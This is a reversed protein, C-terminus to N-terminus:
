EPLAPAPPKTSTETPAANNKTAPEGKPTSAPATPAVFGAVPVIATQLILKPPVQGEVAKDGQVQVWGVLQLAGRVPPKMEAPFEFKNGSEFRQIYEDLHLQLDTVPMTYSYKLEGKKPAVGRAGGPMERVVMEHQRIGNPARSAVIEEALALRLRLSPLEEETFGTVNANISLEGDTVVAALQLRIPTSQQRRLDVFQRLNNYASQTFQLPGTYPFRKSDVVMGDITVTPTGGAEYFAFRDESDQNTMGDPGPIHQHYRLTVVESAPYQRSLATVGLDAAVCPPCLAGTFLEVLVAHDGLVTKPDADAAVPAKERVENILADLRAHHVTALHAELGKDDGHRETWVKKLEDSPTPDGAPQGTRKSMLFQELLPLAVIDSYYLIADELQQTVQAHGALAILIESNFQQKKLLEKLELYAEARNTEGVSTIKELAMQVAAADRLTAIYQKFEVTAEGSLEEARAIHKLGEESLRRTAILHEGCQLEAKAVIKPGWAEACRLLEVIMALVEDNTIEFRTSAQLLMSMAEFSMPSTPHEHAITMIVKPNPQEQMTKFAKEFIDSAPPGADDVYGTLSSVDTSLMRGLYIEQPGSALTGRIAKGDFRGEFDITGQSNKIRLKVTQDEVVTSLIEPAMKDKTSDIISGSFKGDADRALKVIWIYQDRGQMTVVMVWNGEISKPERNIPVIGGPAKKSVAAQTGEEGTAAAGAAAGTGTAPTKPKCGSALVPVALLAIWCLLGSKSRVISSM